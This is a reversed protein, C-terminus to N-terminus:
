NYIASRSFGIPYNNGAVSAYLSEFRFANVRHHSANVYDIFGDCFIEHGLDFPYFYVSKEKVACAACFVLFMEYLFAKCFNEGFGFYFHCGVNKRGCSGQSSMFFANGAYQARPRVATQEISFINNLVNRRQSVNEAIFPATGHESSGKYAINQFSFKRLVDSIVKELLSMKSFLEYYLINVAFRHGVTEKCTENRKQQTMVVVTLNGFKEHSIEATEQLSVYLFVIAGVKGNIKDASHSVTKELLYGHRQLYFMKSETTYFLTRLLSKDTVM